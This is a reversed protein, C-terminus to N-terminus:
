LGVDSNRNDYSFFAESLHTIPAPEGGHREEYSFALALLWKQNDGLDRSITYGWNIIQSVNDQRM